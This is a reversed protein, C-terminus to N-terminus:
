YPNLLEPEQYLAMTVAGGRRPAQQSAAPIAAVIIALAALWVMGPARLRNMVIGGKPWLPGDRAVGAHGAASGFGRAGQGRRPAPIGRRAAGRVSVTRPHGRPFRPRAQPVQAHLPYRAPGSRRTPRAERAGSYEL